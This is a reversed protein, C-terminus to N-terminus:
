KEKLPSGEIKYNILICADELQVAIVVDDEQRMNNAYCYYINVDNGVCLEDIIQNMVGDIIEYNAPECIPKGNELLVYLNENEM